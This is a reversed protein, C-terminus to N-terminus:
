KADETKKAEEAALWAELRALESDHRTLLSVREKEDLLGDELAVATLRYDEREFDITKQVQGTTVPDYRKLSLGCGVLSLASILVALKRM